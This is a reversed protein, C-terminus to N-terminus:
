GALERALELTVQKGYPSVSRSGVIAVRPRLLLEQLLAGRHFLVHPPTAIRALPEPIGGGALTLENIEM